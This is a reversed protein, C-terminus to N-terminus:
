ERLGHRDGFEEMLASLDPVTTCALAQTALDTCDSLSVNGVVKRVDPIRWPNMSLFRLGTGLLVPVGLPIGAAEGCLSVTKGPVAHVTDCIAKLMRLVVPHFQRFWQTVRSNGRDVAFTYQVLDNTGISVFDIHPLMDPLAWLASPVELMLGLHYNDSYPIGDQELSAKAREVHGKAELLEECDAVMPLLINVRGHTTTRLIARLHTSFYSPNSLLFRLGRWGLFPNDEQGFDVYPLPKDGGVDLVRITTSANGCAEVVRKFVSYQEDESPYTSRVMFMFETRYLGVGMAGYRELLPLESVLSINGGLRISVGDTTVALACSDAPLQEERETKYHALAARFKRVVSASPRVYCSGTTCDLLLDDNPQIEDTAGEAGVVMPIRLAKALIATHATLGGQECVIGVLSCLPARILQSPLLERAVVITRERAKIQKGASKLGELTDAAEYIRLIVDKMDALRERMFENDLQKLEKEFGQSVVKLAFRLRFGESLAKQIRQILTPDELLLLHVYFIAADAEALVQEAEENIRGAEERALALAQKLFEKESPIDDAYELPVADLVEAGLVLHARGRVVGDTVARGRLHRSVLRRRPVCSTHSRALKQALQANSIFVALPSAIARALEVLEPAFKRARKTAFDLVGIPRGGAILPVTLLARYDMSRRSDFNHYKAHKQKNATNVVKGTRFTYGTIGQDVSLQLHHVTEQELGYTAEMVLRDMAEDYVLISCADVRLREAIVQVTLRLGERYDSTSAIIACIARIVELEANPM